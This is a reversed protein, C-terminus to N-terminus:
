LKKVLECTIVLNKAFEVADDLRNGRRGVVERRVYTADYKSM